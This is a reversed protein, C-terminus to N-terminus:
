EDVSLVSLRRAAGAVGHFPLWAECAEHNLSFSLLASFSKWNKWSLAEAVTVVSRPRMVTKLGSCARSCQQYVYTGDLGNAM